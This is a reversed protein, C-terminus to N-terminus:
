LLEKGVPAGFDDGAHLNGSNIKALLSSLDYRKARRRIPTLVIRGSDIKLDVESGKSLKTDRAVTAPIRVGLSNGWLQATIKM